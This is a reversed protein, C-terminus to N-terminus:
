PRDSVSNYNGRNNALTHCLLCRVFGAWNGASGLRDLEPRRDCRTAASGDTNVLLGFLFGSREIIGGKDDKVDSM